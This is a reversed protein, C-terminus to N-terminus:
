REVCDFFIARFFGIMFFCFTKVDVFSLAKGDMKKLDEDWALNHAETDYLVKTLLCLKCLLFKALSLITSSKPSVFRSPMTDFIGGKTDWIM